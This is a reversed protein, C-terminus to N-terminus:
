VLLIPGETRIEDSGRDLNNRAIFASREVKGGTAYRNRWHRFRRQADFM